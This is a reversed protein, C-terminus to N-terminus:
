TLFSIFSYGGGIAPPHPSFGHCVETCSISIAYIVNCCGHTGACSQVLWFELMFPLLAWIYSGQFPFNQCNVSQCNVSGKCLLWQGKPIPWQDTARDWHIARNGQACIDQLIPTLFSDIATYCPMTKPPTDLNSAELFLQTYAITPLYSWFM